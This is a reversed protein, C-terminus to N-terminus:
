FFWWRKAKAKEPVPSKKPAQSGQTPIRLPTEKYSSSISSTRNVNAYKKIDPGTLELAYLKEELQYVEQVSPVAMQERSQGVVEQLVRMEAEYHQLTEKLNKLLEVDTKTKYPKNEEEEILYKLYDAVADNYVSIANEKLFMGFKASVQIIFSQEEEYKLIKARLSRVFEEIKEKDSKEKEIDSEVRKNVGQKEIRKQAFTIHMHNRWNCGCKYCNGTSKNIATCDMLLANNVAKPEVNKVYCDTHCHTVYEVETIDTGEIRHYQVCKSSTCVTRPLTLPIPELIIENVYLKKALEGLAKESMDLEQKRRAIVTLNMQITKSIEAIPKSLFLIRQRATYLSRTNNLLHPDFTRITNFLRRTENLSIEWSQAFSKVLFEEHRINPNQLTCLFLFAENDLCFKNHHGLVLENQVKLTELQNELLVSTQGPTYFSNRANTFCFVINKAISKHMHILLEKLCYSFIASIRCDNAKMLICIGHLEKLHCVHDIINKMNEKDQTIGRTDGLGPTDILRVYRGEWFFSYTSCFQTGSQGADTVEGSDDEGIQIVRKESTERDYTTFKIPITCIVGNEKAQELSDYNLYNVISNIWTSKGVGSQGLILINLEKMPRIKSLESTLFESNAPVFAPGHADNSCRYEYESSLGKGCSCYFNGDFGYEINERCRFCNWKLIASSCLGATFGPCTIELTARNGPKHQSPNVRFGDRMRTFNTQKELTYNKYMDQHLLKGGKFHLCRVSTIGMRAFYRKNSVGNSDIDLDVVVYRTTLSNKIVLTLFYYCTSQYLVPDVQEFETSVVLVVFDTSLTKKLEDSFLKGKELYEVGQKVYNKVDEIRKRLCVSSELYEEFGLLDLEHTKFKEVKRILDRLNTQGSRISVWNEGILSKLRSERIRLNEVQNRAQMAEKDPLFNQFERIEASFDRLQQKVLAIEEFLCVISILFSEDIAKIVTEINCQLDTLSRISTLPVLAYSLPKGKGGNFNKLLDPIRSFFRFFCEVTTPLEREPIIDSIIKIKIDNNAVDSGNEYQLDATGKVNLLKAVAEIRAGLSGKVEKKQSESNFRQELNLLCNAGWNAEVVLHTYQPDRLATFDLYEVMEEFSCFLKQNVTEYKCILSCSVYKGSTKEANIFKGCGEAEFLGCLLSVQIDAEVNLLDFRDSVNETFKYDFTTSNVQINQILDQPLSKRFISRSSFCESRIDYLEGIFAVRGLASRTLQNEGFKM